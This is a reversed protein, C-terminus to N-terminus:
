LSGPPLMLAPATFAERRDPQGLNLTSRYLICFCCWAEAKVSLWCWTHSRVPPTLEAVWEPQVIASVEFLVPLAANLLVASWSQIFVSPHWRM